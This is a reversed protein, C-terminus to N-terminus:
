ISGFRSSAVTEPPEIGDVILDTIWKAMLPSLLIGKKGAGNAHYVGEAASSPGVIPLGDSAVPRLCATSKVIPSDALSPLYDTVGNLIHERGEDTVDRNFGRDWEYTGAWVTGDLKRGVNFGNFGVRNQLDVGPRSLRLIEGKIPKIPLPPLGNIEATWPGTAVIIVPADVLDGNTLAVGIAIGNVSRIEAVEGEVFETGSVTAASALAQAYSLSDLEWGSNVVSAAIMGPRIAPEFADIENEGIIQAEFNNTWMWAVDRELQEASEEDAALSLSTVKHLQWDCSAAERLEDYLRIHMKIANRYHQTMPGPVGSGFHASLGGWAYGSANFAVGDREIVIPKLKQRTLSLAIACGVAGAGIVIADASKHILM